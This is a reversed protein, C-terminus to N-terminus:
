ACYSMGSAILFDIIYSTNEIQSMRAYKGDVYMHFTTSASM